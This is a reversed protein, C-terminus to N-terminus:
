KTQGRRADAEITYGDKTGHKDEVRKDNAILAPSADLEKLIEKALEQRVQNTSKGLTYEIKKRADVAQVLMEKAEESTYGAQSLTLLTQSITKEYVDVGLSLKDNWKVASTILGAAGNIRLIVGRRADPKTVKCIKSMGDKRVRMVVPKGNNNDRIVQMVMNNLRNYKGKNENYSNSDCGEWTRISLEKEDFPMAGFNYEAVGLVDWIEIAKTTGIANITPLAKVM